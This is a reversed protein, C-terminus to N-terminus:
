EHVFQHNLGLLQFYLQLCSKVANENWEKQIEKRGLDETFLNEPPQPLRLSKLYLEIAHEEIIKKYSDEEYMKM